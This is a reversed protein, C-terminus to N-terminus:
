RGDMKLLTDLVKLDASFDDVDNKLLSEHEKAFAYGLRTLMEESEALTEAIESTITKGHSLRLHKNVVDHTATLYRKLFRQGPQMDRPDKAMCSLISEASASIAALSTQASFSLHTKKARLDRISRSYLAVAENAAHDAARDKAAEQISINTRSALRWAITVSTGALVAFSVALLFSLMSPALLITLPLLLLLVPLETSAPRRFIFRSVFALLGGWFLAFPLPMGSFSLILTQLVGAGFPINWDPSNTKGRGAICILGTYASFFATISGNDSYAPSSFSNSMILACSSVLSVVHVFVRLGFAKLSEFASNKWKYLDERSDKKKPTPDSM